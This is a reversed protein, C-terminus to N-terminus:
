DVANGAGTFRRDAVLQLPAAIVGDVAILLQGIPAIELSSFGHISASVLMTTPYPVNLLDSSQDGILVMRCCEKAATRPIGVAEDTQEICHKHKLDIHICQIPTKRGSRLVRPASRCPFPFGKRSELM